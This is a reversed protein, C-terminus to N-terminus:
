QHPIQVLSMTYPQFPYQLLTNTTDDNNSSPTSAQGLKTAGTASEHM